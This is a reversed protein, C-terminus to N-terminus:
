NNTERLLVGIYEPVVRRDKGTRVKERTMVQDLSYVGSNTTNKREGTQQITDYMSPRWSYTALLSFNGFGGDAM